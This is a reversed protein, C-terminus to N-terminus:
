GVRPLAHEVPVARILDRYALRLPPPAIITTSISMLVVVGYVAPAIVGLGLGIQAVVVGVEGRPMMGIGIRTADRWGLRIAGLGCRIFRAACALLTLAVPLLMTDSSLSVAADLHLGIGALFFPFLLESVGITMDHVRRNVPRSMAM